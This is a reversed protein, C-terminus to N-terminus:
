NVGELLKNIAIKLNNDITKDMQEKVEKAFESQKTSGESYYPVEGKKFTGIVEKDYYNPDGSMVPRGLNVAISNIFDVVKKDNALHDLIQGSHEKVIVRDIEQDMYWPLSNNHDPAQSGYGPDYYKLMALFMGELEEATIKEHQEALTLVGHHKSIWDIFTNTYAGDVKWRANGYLFNYVYTKNRYVGPAPDGAKWRELSADSFPSNQDSYKNVIPRYIGTGYKISTKPNFSQDTVSNNYKTSILKNKTTQSSLKPVSAVLRVGYRVNMKKAIEDVLQYKNLSSANEINGKFYAWGQQENLRDMITKILLSVERFSLYDSYYPSPWYDKHLPINDIKFFYELWYGGDIIEDWGIYEFNAARIGYAGACGTYTNAPKAQYVYYPKLGSGPSPGKYDCKTWNGKYKTTALTADPAPWRFLSDGKFNFAKTDYLAARPDPDADKKCGVVGANKCAGRTDYVRAGGDKPAWPWKSANSPPSPLGASELNFNLPQGDEGIFSPTSSDDASADNPNKFAYPHEFNFLPAEWMASSFDWTKNKLHGVFWGVLNDPVFTKQLNSLYNETESAGMKLPPGFYKENGANGALLVASLVEAFYLKLSEDWQWPEEPMAKAHPNKSYFAAFRYLDLLKDGFLENSFDVWLTNFFSSGIDMEKYSQKVLQNGYEKDDKNKLTQLSASDQLFLFIRPSAKRTLFSRIKEEVSIGFMMIIYQKSGIM